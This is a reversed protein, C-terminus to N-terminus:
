RSATIVLKPFRHSAQSGRGAARAEISFYAVVVNSLPRTAAFTRSLAIQALPWRPAGPSSQNARTSRGEAGVRSSWM